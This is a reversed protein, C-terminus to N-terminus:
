VFNNRLSRAREYVSLMSTELGELSAVALDTPLRDRETLDIIDKECSTIILLLSLMALYFKLKKM